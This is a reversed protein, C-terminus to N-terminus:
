YSTSYIPLNIFNMLFSVLLNDEVIQLPGLVIAAQLLRVLPKVNGPREWLVPALLCPLLALYASPIRGDKNNQLELLM